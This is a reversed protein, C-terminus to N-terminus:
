LSLQRPRDCLASVGNHLQKSSFILLYFNLRWTSVIAFTFHRFSQLLSSHRTIWYPRWPLQYTAIVVTFLNRLNTLVEVVTFLFFGSSLSVSFPGSLRFFPIYTMPKVPSAMFSGKLKLEHWVQVLLDLLRLIQGFVVLEWPKPVCKYRLIPFTTWTLTFVGIQTYTWWCTRHADNFTVNNTANIFHKRYQIYLKM